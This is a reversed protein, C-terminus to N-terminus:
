RQWASISAWLWSSIGVLAGMLCLLSNRLIRPPQVGLMVAGAGTELSALLLLVGTISGGRAETLLAFFGVLCALSALGLLLVVASRIKTM